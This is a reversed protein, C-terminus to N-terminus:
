MRVKMVKKVVIIYTIYIVLMILILLIGIPNTFLPIFYDKNIISIFLVFVIPVFILVYMILKSSSTLSNFEAELKKRSFMNKEISDFVKIINGGTKNLVALSSTLYLSESTKIRSSFRKFAVEIDLGLAIENSIKKFELAIPGNLEKSVLDIAQKISLGAKFSNNMVTIAKMLDDKIKKKYNIFKYIYIIDLTYFGIIFPIIMEPFSLLKSEVLRVVIALVIFIFGMVVKKAMFNMSNDYNDFVNYKDYRKSRNKIFVSKSLFEGIKDIFKLYDNYLNDFLSVYKNKSTNITFKAFRKELKISRIYKLLLLYIILLIFIMSIQCLRILNTNDKQVTLFVTETTINGAKDSASYEIKKIGEESLDITDINTKINSTIDGDVIDTATIGDLLDIEENAKIKFTKEKINLIPPEKDIKYEGSKIVNIVGLNNYNTVEIKYTGTDTLKIDTSINSAINIPNSYKNDKIIVYSYNLTDLSPTYTIVVDENTSNIYNISLGEM